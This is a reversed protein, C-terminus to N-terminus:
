KIFLIAGSSFLGLGLIILLITPLTTGSTPVPQGTLTATPTPTFMPTATPTAEASATSTPTPTLTGSPTAEGLVQTGSKLITFTHTIGVPKGSADLSTITVSQKGIGLPKPPTFRWVGDGGVTATGSIPNTIGIVITVIRGPIGTGQILPFSTPLSAGQPPLALSVKAATQPKTNTVGLVSTGGTNEQNTALQSDKANSAGGAQQRRFDYTKGLVVVPVPADNLTDTTATAEEDHTMFHISETIREEPTVLADLTDTRIRGLPIIWSGSATVLTSLMQAGELTLLVLASEAPQNNGNVVTGYAPELAPSQDTNPIAAGTHTAYPKGQDTFKKGNSLITFSYETNPKLNRTIVSHTAYSHLRSTLDREDFFTTATKQREVVSVVGTTPVSTTWIVTFSADTINTVEVHTPEISGTATTPQRIVYEIVGM